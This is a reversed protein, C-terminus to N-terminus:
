RPNASETEATQISREVAAIPTPGQLSLLPGLLRQLDAAWGRPRDAARVISLAAHLREIIQRDLPIAAGPPPPHPVLRNGIAVLLRDLGEGTRASVQVQRGNTVLDTGGAEGSSSAPPNGMDSKNWVWIVAPMQAFPRHADVLGQQCDVVALRLDAQQRAQHARDIAQQEIEDDTARVGATDQLEIPWGDVATQARVVDRTTGARASVIARTYGLLANFLSSKGVNPPGVLAIRWPRDLHEGVPARELLQAALGEVRAADGQAASQLLQDLAERLRGNLQEVAFQATRATTAHQLVQRARRELWAEGSSRLWEEESV